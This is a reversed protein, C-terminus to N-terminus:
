NSRKISHSIEEYEDFELIKNFLNSISRTKIEDIKKKKVEIDNSIFEVKYFATDFLSNSYLYSCSFTIFLFLIFKKM